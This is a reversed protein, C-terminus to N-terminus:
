LARRRSAAALIKELDALPASLTTRSLEALLPSLEWWTDGDDLAAAALAIAEGLRAPDAEGTQSWGVLAALRDAAPAPPAGPGGAAAIELAEAFSEHAEGTQGLCAQARGLAVAVRLLTDREGSETALAVAEEAAQEAAKEDGRAAEAWALWAQLLARDDIGAGEEVLLRGLREAAEGAAGERLAALAALRAVPALPPIGCRRRFDEIRAALERVAGTEGLKWALDVATLLHEYERLADVERHADEIGKLVLPFALDPREMRAYLDTFAYADFREIGPIERIARRSRDLWEAVDLTERELLSLLTRTNFALLSHTARIDLAEGADIEETGLRSFSTEIREFGALTAARAEELQRQGLLVYARINHAWAEQYAAERPSLGPHRAAAVAEDSRRLATDLDKMRRGRTVALRYLLAARHLPRTEHALAREYHGDLFAALALNGETLFQRNHAALAVLAHVDAAEPPSLAPARSLLALGLETVSTFAFSAFDARLAEVARAVVAPPLPDAAGALAAFAASDLDDPDHAAGLVAVAPGLAAGITAEWSVSAVPELERPESEQLVHFDLAFSLVRWVPLSRLLGDEGEEQRFAPDFGLVLDPAREPFRRFISKVLATDEWSLLGVDPVALPRRGAAALLDVFLAALAEFAPHQLIFNHTMHSTPRAALARCAGEEAASLRARRGPWFLAAVVAHRRLIDEWDKTPLARCLQGALIRTAGFGRRTGPPATVYFPSAPFLGPDAFSQYLAGESGRLVTVAM